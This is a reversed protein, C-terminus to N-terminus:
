SAFIRFHYSVAFDKQYSYFNFFIM